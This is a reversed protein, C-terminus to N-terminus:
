ATVLERGATTAAGAAAERLQAQLAVGELLDIVDEAGTAKFDNYNMVCGRLVSGAPTAMGALEPFRVERLWQDVRVESTTELASMLAGGVCRPGGDDGMQGRQWGHERIYGAAALLTQSVQVPHL